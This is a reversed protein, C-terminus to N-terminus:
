AKSIRLNSQWRATGRIFLRGLDSADAVDSVDSQMELPLFRCVRILYTYLYRLVYSMRNSNFNIKQILPHVLHSHYANRGEMIRLWKMKCEMIITSNMNDGVELLSEQTWGNKTASGACKAAARPQLTTELARKLHTQWYICRLHRTNEIM